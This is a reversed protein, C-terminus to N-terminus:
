LVLRKMLLSWVRGFQKIKKERDEALQKSQYAEYYILEWPIYPKTSKNLSHNHQYFRKQLDNTQGYYYKGNKKSKLIYFYHM